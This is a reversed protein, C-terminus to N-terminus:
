KRQSGLGLLAHIPCWAILGAVIAAGGVIMLGISGDVSAICWGVLGIGGVVYLLRTAAGLNPQATEDM